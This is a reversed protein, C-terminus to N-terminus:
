EEKLRKSFDKVLPYLYVAKKTFPYAKKRDWKGRGQTLGVFIWNAAKYCTGEFRERDVFSELLFIPHKYIRQWDEPLIKSMRGLIHSALNPVRVFPLILFRNNQALFSINRMRQEDSWGIFEDRCRVRWAGSGWGICAVPRDEIFAIYKLHEGVIQCYGLYHYQQILGNYLPELDTHRVMRIKIEGVEKISGEIPEKPHNPVPPPKRFRKGKYTDTKRKPLEILGKKQLRLLLESCAMQKLSGNPQRWNWIRCLENAIFTRGKFYHGKILSRIMVIDDWNVVRGRILFSNGM